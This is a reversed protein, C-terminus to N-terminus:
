SQKEKAKNVKDRLKMLTELDALIQKITECQTMCAELLQEYTTEKNAKKM